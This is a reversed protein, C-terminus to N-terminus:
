TPCRQQQHKIRPAERAAAVASCLQLHSWQSSALLVITHPGSLTCVSTPFWGLISFQYCILFEWHVYSNAFSQFM